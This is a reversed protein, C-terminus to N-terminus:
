GGTEWGLLEVAVLFGGFSMVFGCVLLVPSDIRAHAGLLILVIGAISTLVAVMIFTLRRLEKRRGPTRM